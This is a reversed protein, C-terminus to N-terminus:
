PLVFSHVFSHVRCTPSFPLHHPRVISDTTYTYLGNTYATHKLAHAQRPLVSGM